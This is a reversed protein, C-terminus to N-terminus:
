LPNSGVNMFSCNLELNAVRREGEEPHEDYNKCLDLFKQSIRMSLDPLRPVELTMREEGGELSRIEWSSILTNIDTRVFDQRM